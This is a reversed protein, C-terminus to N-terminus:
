PLQLVTDKDEKEQFWFLLFGRELNFTSVEGKVGAHLRFERAVTEAGVKRNLSMALLGIAMWCETEGVMDIPLEAVEPYCRALDDAEKPMLESWVWTMKGLTGSRAGVAARDMKSSSKGPKAGKGVM